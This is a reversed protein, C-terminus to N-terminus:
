GGVRSLDPPNKVNQPIITSTGILLPPNEIAVNSKGLSLILIHNRSPEVTRLQDFPRQRKQFM